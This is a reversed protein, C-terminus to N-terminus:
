RSRTATSPHGSRTEPPARSHWSTYYCGRSARSSRTPCVWAAPCPSQCKWKQMTWHSNSARPMTPVSSRDRRDWCSYLTRSRSPNTLRALCMISNYRYNSAKGVDDKLTFIVSCSWFCTLVLHHSALMWKQVLHNVRLWRKYLLVSQIWITICGIWKIKFISDEFQM